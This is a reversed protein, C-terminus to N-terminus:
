PIKLEIPPMNNEKKEVSYVIQSNRHDSYRGKLRDGVQKPRHPPPPRPPIWEVTISYDGAPAGDDKAYTTLTFKGDEGVHATPRPVDGSAAATPHFVVVAGAAPIRDNGQLVFVEGHVSYCPPRGGGCSPVSLVLIALVLTRGVRPPHTPSAM